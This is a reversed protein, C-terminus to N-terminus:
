ILSEDWRHHAHIYTYVNIYM